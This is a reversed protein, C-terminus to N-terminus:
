DFACVCDPGQKALKSFTKVRSCGKKKFRDKCYKERQKANVNERNGNRYNVASNKM